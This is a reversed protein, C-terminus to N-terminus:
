GNVAGMVTSAPHTHRQAATIHNVLRGCVVISSRLTLLLLL